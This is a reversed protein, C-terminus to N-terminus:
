SWLPWSLADVPTTVPDQVLFLPFDRAGPDTALYGMGFGRGSGPEPAASTLHGVVQGAGTRVEAGAAASRPDWQFRLGARSRRVQGRNSTRAVVEQGVYCGKTWSIAEDLSLETLLRDPGFDIGARPWGVALRWAEAAAPDASPPIASGASPAGVLFSLPAAHIARAGGALAVGDLLRDREPGAFALAQQPSAEFEVEEMIRFREFHRLLAGPEVEDAIAWGDSDSDLAVWALALPRGKETGFFTMVGRGPESLALDQTALGQLFSRTDPGRLRLLTLWPAELRM